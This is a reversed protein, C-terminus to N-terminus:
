QQFELTFPKRENGAGEDTFEPQTDLGVTGMLYMLVEVCSKLIIVHSRAQKLWQKTSQNVIFFSLIM